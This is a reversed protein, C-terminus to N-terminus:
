GLNHSDNEWVEWKDSGLAWIDFEQNDHLDFEEKVYTPRDLLRRPNGYRSEGEEDKLIHRHIIRQYSNKWVCHHNGWDDRLRIVKGDKLARIAERDTLRM